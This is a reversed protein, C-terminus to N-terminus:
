YPQSHKVSTHALGETKDAAIGLQYRAPNLASQLATAVTSQETTM